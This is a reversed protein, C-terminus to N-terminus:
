ALLERVVTGETLRIPRGSRDPITTEHPDFGLLHYVTALIDNPHTPHSVPYAGHRDTAGIVQGTRIGAGFFMGWYAGAWHERGGGATRTIAPTRGHESIVLVLTEDLLGRSEMDDLFAPLIQDFKPCLGSKLRPHHNHHTDWAANNDTWTDWFVTVVKVGAEVLRRAALACQGFMTLGYRERLRVSERTVDLARTAAPHTMMALALKRHQDFSPSAVAPNFALGHEVSGLLKNRSDLRTFPVDSPLATGDFRFTSEPTVGDWPDFRTLIPTSGKISPAGVELSGHGAFVPIIPNYSKGLWAAHHHWRGPDTKHNLPWPLVMQVPMGTAEMRIGQRKWLYELVSGFYPQHAPDNNNGEMAPTSERLGSLATSVAHNNSTHTMSRLLCVRHLNRAINPLLESARIGPLSTAISKFDGRVEVPADPKPDLTDLQSPAGYLYLVIVSKPKKAASLGDPKASFSDHVSPEAAPLENVRLPHALGTGLLALGSAQLFDRRSTKDRSHM